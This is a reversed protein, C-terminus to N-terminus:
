IESAASASWWQGRVSGVTLPCGSWVVGERVHEHGGRRLDRPDPQRCDNEPKQRQRHDRKERGLDGSAPARRPPCPATPSSAASSTNSLPSSSRSGCPPGTEAGKRPVNEDAEPVARGKKEPLSSKKVSYPNM